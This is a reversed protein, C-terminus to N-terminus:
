VASRQRQLTHHVTLTANEFDIDEAWRLASAEGSRLGVALAVTILAELRHGAAAKLLRVAEEPDLPTFEREEAKPPRATAAPNRPLQDDKVAPALAARLVVRLYSVLTPSNGAELKESLFRQVVPLTLKALPVAGLGPVLDLKKEKWEAEPICPSPPM